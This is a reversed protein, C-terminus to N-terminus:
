GVKEGFYHPLFSTLSWSKDSNHKPQVFLTSYLLFTGQLPLFKKLPPLFSKVLPTFFKSLIYIRFPTLICRSLFLILLFHVQNTFNTFLLFNIIKKFDWISNHMSFRVFNWSSTLILFEICWSNTELHSSIKFRHDGFMNFLFIM